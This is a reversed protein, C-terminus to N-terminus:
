NYSFLSIESLTNMFNGTVIFIAGIAPMAVLSPSPRSLFRPEIRPVPLIDIEEGFHGSRGPPVDLNRSLLYQPSHPHLDAPTLLQGRVEM